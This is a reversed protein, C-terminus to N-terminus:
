YYKVISFKEPFIGLVKEFHWRISMNNRNTSHFQFEAISTTKGNITIKLTSSNKWNLGYKTWKYTYSEWVIPEKVSISQIVNTFKNYYIILCDFTYKFMSLLVKTINTQIYNKLVIDTSYVIEMVKCFKQPTAQGIIQPALKGSKKTSKASIHKNTNAPLDIGDDTSTFDYQATNGATHKYNPHKKAFPILRKELKAPEELNYKYKGVFDINYALCIAKEFIKGTDETQVKKRVSEETLSTTLSTSNLQSITFTNLILTNPSLM